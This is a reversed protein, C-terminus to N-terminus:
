DIILVLAFGSVAFGFLFHPSDWEFLDLSCLFYIFPLKYFPCLLQIYPVTGMKETGGVIRRLWVFASRNGIISPPSTPNHTDLFSLFITHRGCDSSAM